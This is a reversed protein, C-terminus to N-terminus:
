VVQSEARGLFEPFRALALEGDFDPNDRRLMDALVDYLEDLLRHDAPSVAEYGHVLISQNRSAVRLAGRDGVKLLEGGLPDGLRKLLRATLERGANWTGDRNRGFGAGNKRALDGDLTKIVEHDPPLKASDLGKAFLRSQGLMELVRYARLLADEFQCLRVRRRGNAFLDVTLRRLRCCMEACYDQCVRDPFPQALNHVWARADGSPIYRRWESPVSPDIHIEDATRYDLRDWAALFDAARIMPEVEDAKPLRRMLHSAAAFDGQDLLLRAEDLTRHKAAVGARVSRICETGPIVVGPFRPDRTGEVYRVDDIRHRFAALMIAASMAKTGRTIDVAMDAPSETGLETMVKQFHDYCRDVDGEAGKEPLPRIHVDFETLRRKLERAYELTDLSPLLVIRRWDGTSVSKSIPRYLTEELNAPNGAGVTLFLVTLRADRDIM